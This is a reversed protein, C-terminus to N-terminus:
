EATESPTQMVDLGVLRAVTTKDSSVCRICITAGDVTLAWRDNSVQKLVVRKPDIFEFRTAYTDDADSTVELTM